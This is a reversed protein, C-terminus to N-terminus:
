ITVVSTLLNGSLLIVTVCRCFTVLAGLLSQQKKTVTTEACLAQPVLFMGATAQGLRESECPEKNMLSLIEGGTM